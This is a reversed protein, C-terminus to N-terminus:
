NAPLLAARYSGSRIDDLLPIGEPNWGFTARAKMASITSDSRLVHAYPGIQQEAVQLPISTPVAGTVDAIAEALERFTFATGGVANFIGAVPNQLVASYLEALDDVHVPHWANAGDEIYTALGTRVASAILSTVLGSGGRGYVLGARVLIPTIGTASLVIREAAAKVPQASQAPLDASEDTSRTPDTGYVLGTSTYIVPKAVTATGAGEVLAAIAALEIATSEETMTYDVAAHISADADAASAHLTATDALDGQVPIAGARKLTDASEVSRALATVTHGVALLREVLVSGVYGTGGTIFVKM